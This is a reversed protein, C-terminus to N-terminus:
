DETFSYYAINAPHKDDSTCSGAKIDDSSGYPRFTLVIVTKDHDM